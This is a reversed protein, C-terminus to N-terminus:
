DFRQPLQEDHIVDCVFVVFYKSKSQKRIEAGSICMNTQQSSIKLRTLRIRM